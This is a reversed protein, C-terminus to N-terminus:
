VSHTSFLLATRVESIYVSEPAQMHEAVVDMKFNQRDADGTTSVSREKETNDLM